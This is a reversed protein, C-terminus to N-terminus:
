VKAVLSSNIQPKCEKSSFHSRGQSQELFNLKNSQKGYLSESLPATDRFM